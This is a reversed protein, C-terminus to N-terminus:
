TKRAEVAQGDEGGKEIAPTPMGSGCTRILMDGSSHGSGGHGGDRALVTPGLGVAAALAITTALMKVTRTFM